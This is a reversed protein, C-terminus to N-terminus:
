LLDSSVVLAARSIVSTVSLHVVDALSAILTLRQTSSHALLACQHFGVSLVSDAVSRLYVSTLVFGSSVVEAM